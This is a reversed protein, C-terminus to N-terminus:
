ACLWVHYEHTDDLMQEAHSNMTGDRRWCTWHKVQRCLTEIDDRIRRVMAIGAILRCLM